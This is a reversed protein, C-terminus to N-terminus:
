FIGLHLIDKGYSCGGYESACKPGQLVYSPAKKKKNFSVVQEMM